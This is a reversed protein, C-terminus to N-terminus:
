THLLFFNEKMEKTDQVQYITAINEQRYNCVFDSTGQSNTWMNNCKRTHLAKTYDVKGYLDKGVLIAQV